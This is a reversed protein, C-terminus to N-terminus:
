TEGKAAFARGLPIEAARCRDPDGTSSKPLYLKRDVLACGGASAYAAFVGIRCNETHGAAGSHRRHVGASTISKKHSGTDDIVLVGDPRGPKEAAHGQPDDRIEEPDWRSGAFLGQLGNPRVARCIRTRRGEGFRAPGSRARCGARQLHEACRERACGKRSCGM